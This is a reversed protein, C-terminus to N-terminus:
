LKGVVYSHFVDTKYAAISQCVIGTSTLLIHFSARHQVFLDKVICVLNLDASALTRM